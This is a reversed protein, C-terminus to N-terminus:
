EWELHQGKIVKDMTDMHHDVSVQKSQQSMHSKLSDACHVFWVAYHTYDSDKMAKNSLDWPTGSHSVSVEESSAKSIRSKLM